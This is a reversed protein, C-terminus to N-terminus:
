TGSRDDRTVNHVKELAEVFVSRKGSLSFRTAFNVGVLPALLLGRVGGTTGNIFGFNRKCCAIFASCETVNIQTVFQGIPDPLNPQVTPLRVWMQQTIEAFATACDELAKTAGWVTSLVSYHRGAIRHVEISMASLRDRNALFSPTMELARQVKFVAEAPAGAGQALNVAEVLSRVYIEADTIRRSAESFFLEIEGAVHAKLHALAEAKWNVTATHFAILFGLVTLVSTVVATKSETPLGDVWLVLQAFTFPKPEGTTWMVWYLLLSLFLVGFITGLLFRVVLVVPLGNYFLWATVTPPMRRLLSLGFM